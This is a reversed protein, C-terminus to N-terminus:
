KRVKEFKEKKEKQYAEEKVQAEKQIKEQYERQRKIVEFEKSLAYATDMLTKIKNEV